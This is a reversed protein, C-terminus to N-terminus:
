QSRRQGGERIIRAFGKKRSNSVVESLLVEAGSKNRLYFEDLSKISRSDEPYKIRIKM